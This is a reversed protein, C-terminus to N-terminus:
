HTTCTGLTSGANEAAPTVSRMCRVASSLKLAHLRGALGRVRSAGNRLPEQRAGSFLDEELVERLGADVLRADGRVARLM